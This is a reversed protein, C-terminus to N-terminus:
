IQDYVLKLRHQESNAPQDFIAAEPPHRKRAFARFHLSIWTSARSGPHLFVPLGKDVEAQASRHLIDEPRAIV